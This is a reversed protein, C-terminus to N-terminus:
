PGGLRSAFDEGRVVVARSGVRLRLIAERYRVLVVKEGVRSRLRAFVLEGRRWEVDVVVGPRAVLGRVTGAADFEAPLAPLLEIEGRHSQLLFEATAAVFGLNADIQFPPHSALLNRYLGGAFPGDQDEAPRIMSRLLPSIGLPDRLRARLALRWVVSWGTSDNGRVDLSRGAAAELEVPFPRTGPYLFWLHSQHRHQPDEDPGADEWEAVLGDETVSPDPIRPWVRRATAVLPDDIVNLLSALEDFTQFLDRLLSLDLTASRGVSSVRGDQDIFANEPSTSPSTHLGRGDERLWALAFEAASRVPGWMRERAFDEVSAASVAGFERHDQLHRALWIGGLPWFAWKPDHTGNGVPLAYGWRDSNHHAAWGSTGLLRLAPESGTQALLDVFDFLPVALESLQTVEAPWFNMQLNINITYASSWPPQLQANWIGQLNPPPSGERTSSILLYRGYHFLLAALGPDTSLGRAAVASVRQDTPTSPPAGGLELGVRTYLDRNAAEHSRRVEDIGRRWVADAREVAVAAAVRAGPLPLGDDVIATSLVVICRTVGVMHSKGEVVVERGDHRWQVVVAGRSSAGPTGDYSISGPVEDHSPPVDSPLQVLLRTSSEASERALVRLTSDISLAIELPVPSEVEIVVAEDPRSAWSRRVLEEDGGLDTRVTHIARELDLEREVTGQISEGSISYKLTLAALPLFTQSHRHQLAQLPSGADFGRGEAIAGRADDLAQRAHDGSIRPGQHASAASGSWGRADNLHMVDESAGGCVMVGQRGNGIPLGDIWEVASGLLRIFHEGCSGAEPGPM